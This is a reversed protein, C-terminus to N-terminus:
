TPLRVPELIKTEQHNNGVQQGFDILNDNKELLQVTSALASPALHAYRLTMSMTAHGLLEKVAQLPAGESVLHSAYTHRLTHWSAREVGVRACAREIASYATEYVIPRGNYHFVLSNIRTLCLLANRVDTTFPVYRIKGNKPTGLHGEVRAYRVCLVCGNLDIDEWQLAVLESFRLGTRAAVFIMVRWLLRPENQLLQALEERTLVRYKPAPFPLFQVRPVQIQEGWECAIILCRHLVALQNNITKPHLARARQCKKFQEVKQSDICDLRMRGFFPILYGRLIHEKSRQESPKNNVQVYDKMWRNVFEAFLPMPKRRELALRDLSGHTAVERRLCAEYALAGAKSNDPSRLRYRTGNSRFDVWWSNRIKRTSM